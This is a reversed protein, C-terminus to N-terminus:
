RRANKNWLRTKGEQTRTGSDQRVKKREQELAKDLKKVKDNAHRADERCRIDQQEFKRFEEQSQECEKTLEKFSRCVGRVCHQVGPACGGKRWPCRVRAFYQVEPACGGM